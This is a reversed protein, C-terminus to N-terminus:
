GYINNCRRGSGTKAENFMRSQWGLSSPLTIIEGESSGDMKVRKMHERVRLLQRQYLWAVQQLLFALSVDFHVASYYPIYTHWFDMAPMRRSVTGERTMMLGFPDPSPLECVILM